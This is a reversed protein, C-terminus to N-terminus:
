QPREGFSCWGVGCTNRLVEASPSANAGTIKSGLDSLMMWMVVQFHTAAGIYVANQILRLLNSPQAVTYCSFVTRQTQHLEWAITLEHYVPRSKSFTDPIFRSQIQMAHCSHIRRTSSIIYLVASNGDSPGFALASLVHFSHHGQIDHVDKFELVDSITRMHVM